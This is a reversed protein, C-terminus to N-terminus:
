DDSGPDLSALKRLRGMLAEIEPRNDKYFTVNALAAASGEPAKQTQEQVYVAGAATALAAITLIGDRPSIGASAFAKAIAPEAEHRAVLADIGTADEGTESLREALSPDAKAAVDIAEYAQVMKRINSMTLTYNDLAPEAAAITGFALTVALVIRRM